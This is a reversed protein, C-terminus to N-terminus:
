ILFKFINYLLELDNNNINNKNYRFFLEFYNNDTDTKISIHINNYITIYSEYNGHINHIYEENICEFIDIIMDLNKEDDDYINVLIKNREEVFDEKNYQVIDLKKNLEIETFNQKNLLLKFNM